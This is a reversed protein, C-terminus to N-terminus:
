AVSPPPRPALFIQVRSGCIRLPADARAKIVSVVPPTLVFGHTIAASLIIPASARLRAGVGPAGAPAVIARGDIKTPHRADDVSAWSVCQLTAIAVILVLEVSRRLV